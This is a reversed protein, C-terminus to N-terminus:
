CKKCVRRSNLALDAVLQKLKKSEDKLQCLERIELTGLRGYKKKLRCFTQESVQLSRSIEAVPTGAEAQRLAMSIQEEAFRKKKM